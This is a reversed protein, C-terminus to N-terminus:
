GLTYIAWGPPNETLILGPLNRFKNALEPQTIDSPLSGPAQGWKNIIWTLIEVAASEWDEPYATSFQCVGDPNIICAGRTQGLNRYLVCYYGQSMLNNVEEASPYPGPGGWCTHDLAYTAECVNHFVLKEQETQVEHVTM